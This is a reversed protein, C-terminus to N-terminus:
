QMDLHAYEVAIRLDMGLHMSVLVSLNDEKGEGEVKVANNQIAAPPGVDCFELM